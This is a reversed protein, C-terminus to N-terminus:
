YAKFTFKSLPKGTGSMGLKALEFLRMVVLRELEDIAARYKMILAEEKWHNYEAGGIEWRDQIGLLEQINAVLGEAHQLKRHASDLQIRAKTVAAKYEALSNPQSDLTLRAVQHARKWDDRLSQENLFSIVVLNYECNRQM